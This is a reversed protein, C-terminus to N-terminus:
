SIFHQFVDINPWVLYLNFLFSERIAWGTFFARALVLRCTLLTTCIGIKAHM